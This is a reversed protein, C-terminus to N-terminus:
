PRDAPVPNRAPDWEVLLSRPGRFSTNPLYEVVQGPALRLHPLRRTLEELFVRLELRALTAGMCTHPGFGFTLHHSANRRDLDFADPDPFVEEDRNASATVLLLRAGEPIRVGGVTTERVALRRWSVVSGDLRLCEEVARPILDPERCIRDWGAERHRLLTLLANGAANTTTEHAAVLGSMAVTQLHNDDVLGPHERSARILHPLWGEADPTRKLKEVLGGAFEWYEGMGTAVRLQEALDPRGWTFLTQEMGFRSCAEIDEDPVGLFM